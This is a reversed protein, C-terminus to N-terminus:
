LPRCPLGSSDVSAASPTAPSAPGPTGARRRSASTSRSSPSTPSSLPPTPSRPARTGWASGACSRGACWFTASRRPVVLSQTQLFQVHCQLPGYVFLTPIMWRIYSGAGAAIEPDQGLLLLIRGTNAWLAAVPVSALGLALMARQKYVGLMHQQQQASGFAQGGHGGAVWCALLLSFGTVTAFSTAMSAKSLALEGLHGVFMVSIMQVVNQLLGGAILPGALWVQKKVESAAM